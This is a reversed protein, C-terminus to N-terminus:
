RRAIVKNSEGDTILALVERERTTLPFAQTPAAPEGHAHEESATRTWRAWRRMEHCAEEPAVGGCAGAALAHLLGPGCFLVPGVEGSGRARELLPALAEWAASPSGTRTEGVALSVRVM